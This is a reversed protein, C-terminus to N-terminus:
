TGGEVYSGIRRLDGKLADIWASWVDLSARRVFPKLPTLLSRNPSLMFLSPYVDWAWHRRTM